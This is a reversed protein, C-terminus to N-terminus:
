RRFFTEWVGIIGAITMGGIVLWHLVQVAVEMTIGGTRFRHAEGTSIADLALM